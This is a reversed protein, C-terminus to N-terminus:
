MTFPLFIIITRYCFSTAAFSCLIFLSNRSYIIKSRRGAISFNCPQKKRNRFFYRIFGFIKLPFNKSIKNESNDKCCFLFSWSFTSAHHASQKKRAIPAPLEGKRRLAPLRKNPASFFRKKDKEIFFRRYLLTSELFHSGKSRVGSRHASM